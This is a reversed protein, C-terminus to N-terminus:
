CAFWEQAQTLRQAVRVGYPCEVTCGACEGCRASAQAPDLGLYRERALAFQGYGEAYTLFRLIDPVPLGQRCSGDCEGCMRCYFPAMREMRLALLKEDRSGFPESMAKLNEELQDTDTMSPITTHVHPNRLVWKLAALMAGGRGLRRDAPVGHRTRRMGGAMVKMAVIGKGAAAAKEIVGNMFPEMMFNYSTLIVDINPNAALWPLLERQGSHTSVGAFRIKGAKKAIQQAEILGDNVDSPSDKAHLYWIDVYDTGLVKLSIDIEELAEQRTRGETKTSLVVQKRKNKLAAGVMRENNGGQYSRATDFYTIGLDAAREIVSGDSTIMCGFGLTTVRLGTRGLTHYRLLSPATQTGAPARRSKNGTGPSASIAAPLALGAALFNRRSSHGNM